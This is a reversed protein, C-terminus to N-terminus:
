GYITCGEGRLTFAPKPATAWTPRTHGQLVGTDTARHSLLHSSRLVSAPPASTLPSPVPLQTPMMRTTAVGEAGPGTEMIRLIAGSVEEATPRRETEKVWCQEAIEWIADSLHPASEADPQEPRIDQKAVLEIFDGYNVDALPVENTFIEFITMGLSYIDNPKKLTGGLLREPAMWNRTGVFSEAVSTMAQSTTDAKVRSLGFDCLVANWCDDILVNLAKLAGHIIKCEHLYVLGLYAHSIIQLRDCNPHDRVYGRAYGNRLYPM